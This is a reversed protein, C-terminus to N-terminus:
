FPFVGLPNCSASLKFRRLYLTAAPGDILYINDKDIIIHPFGSNEPAARDASDSPGAKLAYVKGPPLPPKVALRPCNSRPVLNPNYPLPDNPDNPSFPHSHWALIATGQTGGLAGAFNFECSTDNPKIPLLYDQISGDPLLTRVGGRERRDWPSGTPPSSDLAMKLARRIGEDNLLSDVPQQEQIMCPLVNVHISLHVAVGEVHADVHMTYSHPYEADFGLFAYTDAYQFQAGPPETFTAGDHDRHYWISDIVVAVHHGPAPTSIFFPTYRLEFWNLVPAAEYGIRNTTAILSMVVGNGGEATVTVPGPGLTFNPRPVAGGASTPDTTPLDTCGVAGLFTLVVLWGAKKAFLSAHWNPALNM